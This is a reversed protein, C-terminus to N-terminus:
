NRGEQSSPSERWTLPEFSLPRECLIAVKEFWLGPGVSSRYDVLVKGRESLDNPLVVGCVERYFSEMAPWSVWTQGGDYTSWVASWVASEVASWV